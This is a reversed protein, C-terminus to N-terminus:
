RREGYRRARCVCLTFRHPSAGEAFLWVHRGRDPQCRWSDAGALAVYQGTVRTLAPDVSTRRDASAAGALFEAKPYLPFRDDSM